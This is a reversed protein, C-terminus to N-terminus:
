TRPSGRTPMRFEPVHDVVLDDWQLKGEQVLLAIAAATFAKSCSAINFLSQRTLPVGTAREGVGVEVLVDGDQVVAVAFGPQTLGVGGYPPKGGCNSNTTGTV